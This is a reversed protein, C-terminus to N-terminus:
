RRRRRRPPCEKLARRKMNLSTQAEEALLEGMGALLEDLEREDTAGEGLQEGAVLVLVLCRVSPPMRDWNRRLIDAHEEALYSIHSASFKSRTRQLVREIINDPMSKDKL